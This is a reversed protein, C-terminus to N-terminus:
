PGEIPCGWGASSRHQAGVQIVGCGRPVRFGRSNVDAGFAAEAGRLGALV